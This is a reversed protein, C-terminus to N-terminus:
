ISKGWIAIGEVLVRNLWDLYRKELDERKELYTLQFYEKGLVNFDGIDNQNEDKNRSYFCASIAVIGRFEYGIGHASVLIEGQNKGPITLRAWSKYLSPNAYYGNEKAMMIIQNRFYYDKESGNLAISTYPFYGMWFSTLETKLNDALKQMEDHTKDIILNAMIKASERSEIEQRNKSEIQAKISGIIASLQVSKKVDAAITLASTFTSRQIKAFLEILPILNGKDALELADIYDERNDRTITLPFWGAKILILSALARAIRGNGDQFPHIQAFRHHLWASEVIPSVGKKMHSTHLQILRDMESSTQEPPAYEHLSGDTQTPSNPQQKYDGVILPIDRVNGFQDVGKTTKQNRCFAAHLEKIYSTSLVRSQKVFDFLGNVVDYQDRIIQRVLVPDRNTSEHTIVNAEIGKEILVQTVGVDLTYIKEVVGTEIAWQRQLRKVFDNLVGKQNLEEKQENWVAALSDLGSDVFQYEESTLDEIPHWKYSIDVM